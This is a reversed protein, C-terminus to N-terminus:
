VTGVRVLLTLARLLSHWVLDNYTGESSWSAVIGYRYKSLLYLGYMKVVVESPLSFRLSWDIIELRVM